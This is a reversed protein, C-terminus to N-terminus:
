ITARTIQYQRRRHRAIMAAAALIAIAVLAISSPEPVPNAGIEIMGGQVTFPIPDNSEDWLMTALPDSPYNTVFSLPIDGTTGGAVTFQIWLLGDGAALTPPTSNAFDTGYVIDGEALIGPSQNGFLYPHESTAGAATFSIGSDASVSLEVSDAGVQSSAPDTDQVYIEATATQASASYRLSITPAAVIIGARSHAPNLGLCVAAVLIGLALPVTGM